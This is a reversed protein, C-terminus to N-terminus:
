VSESRGTIGYKSWSRVLDGKKGAVATTAPEGKTIAPDTNYVSSLDQALKYSSANKDFDGLVGRPVWGVLDLCEINITKSGTEGKIPKVSSGPSLAVALREFDPERSKFIAGKAIKVTKPGRAIKKPNSMFDVSDTFLELHIINGSGMYPGCHGVIDGRKLILKSDPIVIKDNEPDEVSVDIYKRSFYAYGGEALGQYREKGSPASKFSVRSGKALTSLDKSEKSAEARITLDVLSTYKRPLFLPEKGKLPGTYGSLPLLHMYLSYFRAEFGDVSELEHFLLVFANSFPTEKSDVVGKLPEKIVRYAILIGDAIACVPKAVSFHMGGHWYRNSGIPFFGGTGKENTTLLSQATEGDFPFGIDLKTGKSLFSSCNGSPWLPPRNDRLFSFQQTRAEVMRKCSKKRIVRPWPM